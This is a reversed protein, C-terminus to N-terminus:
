KWIYFVPLLLIGTTFSIVVHSRLLSSDERLSNLQREKLLRNRLAQVQQPMTLTGGMNPRTAIETQLLAGFAIRSGYDSSNYDYNVCLPNDVGDGLEHSDPLQIRNEAGLKDDLDTIYNGGIKDLLGAIEAILDDVKDELSRETHYCRKEDEGIVALCFACKEDRPVWATDRHAHCFSCFDLVNKCGGGCRLCTWLWKMDAGYRLLFPGGMVPAVGENM